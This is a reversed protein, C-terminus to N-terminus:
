ALMLIYDHKKKNSRTLSLLQKIIVTTLSFIIAFSASAIGVPAGVISASLIICSGSSTESLVILIKYLYDFAIVYKSLKKNCTKM